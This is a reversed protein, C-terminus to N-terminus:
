MNVRGGRSESEGWEWGVGWWSHDRIVFSEVIGKLMQRQDCHSDVLRTISEVLTKRPNFFEDFNISFQFHSLEYFAATTYTLCSHLRAFLLNELKETKWVVLSYFPLSLSVGGM